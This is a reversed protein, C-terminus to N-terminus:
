YLHNEIFPNPYGEIAKVRKAWLLEEGSPPFTKDWAEFLKRQSLSLQIDYYWSMFLHARAVIGKARDPPEIRKQKSSIKIPCGYFTSEDSLMMFRFNSRAQNVLGAEPWLNYLEAEAERFAKDVKECCKRGKYPKGNKHTCVAENWCTLHHGFHDAAMIHEWEIRHARHHQSANEMHCSKLNVRLRDDFQCACYLTQSNEAFIVRAIKKASQFSHPKTYAFSCSAFLFLIIIKKFSNM